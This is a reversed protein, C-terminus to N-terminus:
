VSKLVAEIFDTKAETYADRDDRFREALSQKLDGYAKVLSPDSRLADRFACHRILEVSGEACVYLHHTISLGPPHKFAERGPIGQDGHHIYDLTELHHKVAPFVSLDAIVVDLDIVSKAALGPVSTSGVHEIRVILDGCAEMIRAAITEFHRPWEPNYPEIIVPGPMTM